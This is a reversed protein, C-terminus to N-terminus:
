MKTFTYYLLSTALTTWLLTAYITSDTEIKKMSSVSNVSNNLENLKNDLDARKTLIERHKTSLESVIPDGSNKEPYANLLATYDNIDKILGSSSNGLITKYNTGDSDNSTCNLDAFKFANTATHESNYKCKKFKAFAANFDNLKNLVAIEKNFLDKDQKLSADTPYDYQNYFDGPMYGEIVRENINQMKEIGKCEPLLNNLNYPNYQQSRSSWIPKGDNRYIALYGDDNMVLKKGEMCGTKTSWLSNGMGDRLDLNGSEEFNLTMANKSSTIGSNWIAKSRFRSQKLGKLDNYYEIIPSNDPKKLIKRITLVGDLSFLLIYSVNSSTLSDGRKMVTGSNIFATNKIASFDVPKEREAKEARERAEREAKQRAEREAKQRAEREAKQRAEREAKERAERDRVLREARERAERALRETREKAERALRETRERAERALREVRERAERALRETRERIERAIRAFPNEGGGRGRGM